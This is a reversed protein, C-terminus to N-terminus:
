SLVLDVIQEGDHVPRDRPDDIILMALLSPQDANPWYDVRKQLQEFMENTLLWKTYTRAKNSKVLVTKM